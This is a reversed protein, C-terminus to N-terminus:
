SGRLQRSHIRQILQRRLTLKCGLLFFVSWPQNSLEFVSLIDLCISVDQVYCTALTTTLYRLGFTEEQVLSTRISFVTRRLKMQLKCQFLVSNPIDTEQVSFFSQAQRYVHIVDFQFECCTELTSSIASSLQDQRGLMMDRGHVNPICVVDIQVSRPPTRIM